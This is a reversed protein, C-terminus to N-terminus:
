DGASHGIVGHGVEVQEIAKRQDAVSMQGYSSLTTDISEHGLNQRVANLFAPSQHQAFRTLTKRFNHPKIYAYGAFTFAKKFVDRITSDSKIEQLRLKEELLNSQGFRTDIVPFLPDAGKRGLKGLYDRWEIVNAVIDPPLPLFHVHRTKAYKVTMHRPSVYIFYSGNEEILNKLTVTGLESIRLTCLAQLSIIAVNRKERETRQPM